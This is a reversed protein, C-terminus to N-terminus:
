NIPATFLRRNEPWRCLPRTHADRSEHSDFRSRAGTGGTERRARPQERQDVRKTVGSPTHDSRALSQSLARSHSLRDIIATSAGPQRPAVFACVAPIYSLLLSSLRSADSALAISKAM